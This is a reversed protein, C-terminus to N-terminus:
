FIAGIQRQSIQSLIREFGERNGITSASRGLDEIIKVQSSKWGYNIAYTKQGRQYLPSATNEQVQKESSQRISVIAVRALHSATIGAPVHM